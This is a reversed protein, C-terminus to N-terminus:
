LSNCQAGVGDGSLHNVDLAAPSVPPLLSGSEGGLAPPAQAATNIESFAQVVVHDFRAGSGRILQELASEHSWAERFARPNTMADYADAVLIIRSLLPIQEGSLGGPYGTGDFHEHHHLVADAVDEMNTIERLLRAGCKSHLRMVAHEDKTLAGAKLSISDPIGIRGIDHLFASLSLQELTSADLGIHRGIATAYGSVRQAHGRTYEDKAELVDTIALLFGLPMKKMRAVLRQNTLALNHRAKGTEYHEIAREVTLRLEDNDWPKTVYKYVQGCNIAEVLSGVDTYGTLIIRVTHPRLSAAHQLLEIGTMGPMRQDTILLTVDHQELARMAEEGSSATIVNFDRSFLRELLRLNAAEDDVILIKHSM